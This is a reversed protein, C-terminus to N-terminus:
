SAPFKIYIIFVGDKEITADVELGLAESVKKVVALGVGCHKGTDTRSKDKRWFFDFVHGVDEANLGSGTNSISLAISNESRDTRARIQGKRKTYEVANDLINSIIM